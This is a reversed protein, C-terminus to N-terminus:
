LHMFDDAPARYPHEPDERWVRLRILPLPAGEPVPQVAFASPLRAEGGLVSIQNGLRLALLRSGEGAREAAAGEVEGPISFSWASGAPVQAAVEQISRPLDEFRLPLTRRTYYAVGLEVTVRNAQSFLTNGSETQLLVGNPFVSVGPASAQRRLLEKEREQERRLSLSRYQQMLLADCRECERRMAPADAAARALNARLLQMAAAPNFDGEAFRLYKKACDVAAPHAGAPAEGTELTQQMQQVFEEASFALGQRRSREQWERLVPALSNGIYSELCRAVEPSKEQAPCVLVTAGAMMITLIRQM